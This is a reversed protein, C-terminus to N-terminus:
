KVTISKMATWFEDSYDDALEKTMDMYVQIGQNDETIMHVMYLIHDLGNDSYTCMTLVSNKFSIPYDKNEHIMVKDVKIGRGQFQLRKALSYKIVDQEYKSADEIFIMIAPIIARGENDVISNRKFIYSTPDEERKNSLSWEENPMQITLNGEKIIFDNTQGFSIRFTLIIIITLLRM